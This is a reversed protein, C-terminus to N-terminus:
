DLKKFWWVGRAQPFGESGLAAALALRLAGLSSAWNPLGRSHNLLSRLPMRALTAAPHEADVGAAAPKRSCGQALHRSIPADLDLRGERVRQLALYAVAPKTLLAAQFLPPPPPLSAPHDHFRATVTPPRLQRFVGFM